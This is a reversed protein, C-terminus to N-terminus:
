VAQGGIELVAKWAEHTADYIKRAERCDGITYASGAAAALAEAPGSRAALGAANVVAGCDIRSGDECVVCGPEARAAKTNLRVDVGAKALRHELGAKANAEHGPVIEPLM